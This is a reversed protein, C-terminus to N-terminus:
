AAFRSVPSIRWIVCRLPVFPLGTKEGSPLIIAKMDASETSWEAHASVFSNAIFASPDPACTNDPLRSRGIEPTDHAGSLEPTYKLTSLSPDFFRYKAVVVPCNWGTVLPLCTNVTFATPLVPTATPMRDVGVLGFSTTDNTTGFVPVAEVNVWSVATFSSTSAPLASACVSSIQYVDFSPSFTCPQTTFGAPKSGDFFYGSM